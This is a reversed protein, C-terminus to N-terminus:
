TKKTINFRWLKIAKYKLAHLNNDEM